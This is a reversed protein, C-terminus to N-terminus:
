LPHPNPSLARKNDDKTSDRRWPPIEAALVRSLARARGHRAELACFKDRTSYHPMVRRNEIENVAQRCLGLVSALQGQTMHGTRRLARFRKAIATKRKTIASKDRPM